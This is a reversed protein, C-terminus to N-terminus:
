PNVPLGQTTWNFYGKTCPVNMAHSTVLRVHINMLDDERTQLEKPIPREGSNETRLRQITGVVEAIRQFTADKDPILYLVRESRTRYIERLRLQLEGNGVPESNISLGSNFVQLAVIRQTDSTSVCTDTAEEVRPPIRQRAHSPNDSSVSLRRVKYRALVLIAVLALLLAIIWKAKV